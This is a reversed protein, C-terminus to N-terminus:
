VAYFSVQYLSICHLFTNDLSFQHLLCTMYSMTYFSIHYCLYPTFLHPTFLHSTSIVHLSVHHLPHTVWRIALTFQGPARLSERILYSGEGGITLLFDANERSIAGHYRACLVANLEDCVNINPGQLCYYIVGITM